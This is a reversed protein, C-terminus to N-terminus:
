AHPPAELIVDKEDSVNVVEIDLHMMHVGQNIVNLVGIIKSFHQKFTWILALRIFTCSNNWITEEINWLNKENQEMQKLSSKLEMVCWKPFKYECYNHFVEL